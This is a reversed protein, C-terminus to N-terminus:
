LTNCIFKILNCINNIGDDTVFNQASIEHIHNNSIIKVKMLRPLDYSLDIDICLIDSKYKIYYNLTETDTNDIYSLIDTDDIELMSKIKEISDTKNYLFDFHSLNLEFNSTNICKKNNYYLTYRNDDLNDKVIKYVTGKNINFSPNSKICLALKSVM